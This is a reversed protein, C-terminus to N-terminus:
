ITSYRVINYKVLQIQSQTDTKSSADFGHMIPELFVAASLSNQKNQILETPSGTAVLSDAKQYQLTTYINFWQWSSPCTKVVFFFIMSQM